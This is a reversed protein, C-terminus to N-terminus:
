RNSGKKYVRIYDIAMDAPFQTSDDPNGVFNGGVAVNVVLFFPQDFPAPYSGNTTFWTSQTQYVTGDVFWRIEEPEWEITFVHYDDSFIGKSLSYSIGSYKNDPWSGGYHLTGYVTGPQNGKLEMIDIEGSAAWTGYTNNAPLMWIAPWIGKGSPLRARVDVKGYKWNNKDKTNLRASTYSRTGDTDTYQEKIARIILSGNNIFSNNSRNTYYQLESNGGGWGNVEYNWDSLNISSGQFEDSWVLSWGTTNSSALPLSSASSFNMWVWIVLCVLSILYM